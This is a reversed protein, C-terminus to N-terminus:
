QTPSLFPGLSPTSAPSFPPTPLPESNPAHPPQMARAQDAVYILLLSSFFVIVIRKIATNWVSTVAIMFGLATGFFLGFVLNM